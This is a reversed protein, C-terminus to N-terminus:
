QGISTVMDTCPSRPYPVTRRSYQSQASYEENYESDENVLILLFYQDLLNPLQLPELNMKLSKMTEMQFLLSTRRPRQHNARNGKQLLKKGKQQHPDQRRSGEQEQPSRSRDSVRNQPDVTASSEDLKQQCSRPPTRECSRSREDSRSRGRQEASPQPEVLPSSHNMVSLEEDSIMLNQSYGDTSRPPVQPTQTNPHKHTHIHESVRDLGNGHGRKRRHCIMM